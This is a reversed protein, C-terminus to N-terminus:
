LLSQFVLVTIDGTVTAEPQADRKGAAKVRTATTPGTRTPAAPRHGATGDTGAHSHGRVAAAQGPGAAVEAVPTMWCGSGFRAPDLVTESHEGIEIKSHAM